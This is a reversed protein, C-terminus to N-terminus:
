GILLRKRGRQRVAELRKLVDSKTKDNNKNYSELVENFDIDPHTSIVARELVYLDVARDESSTSFSSLGFDIPILQNQHKLKVLFNSTTLDGHIVGSSHIQAITQGLNHLLQDVSQKDTTKQLYECVNISDQIQTMVINNQDVFLITPMLSGLQPSKDKIKMISRVEAKIRERTLRTDLEKIRYNKVFREKKVVKLGNYVGFWIKSEAGQFQLCWENDSEKNEVKFGNNDEIETM